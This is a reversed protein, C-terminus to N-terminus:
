THSEYVSYPVSFLPPRSQPDFTRFFRRFASILLAGFHSMAKDAVARRPPYVGRWKAGIQRQRKCPVGARRSKGAPVPFLSGAPWFGTFKPEDAV